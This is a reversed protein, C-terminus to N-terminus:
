ATKKKLIAAGIGLVAVIGAGIVFPSVGKEQEVPASITKVDEVANTTSIDEAEAVEGTVEVIQSDDALEAPDITGHDVGENLEPNYQLTVAEIGEVVKIGEENVLKSVYDANEPTYPAIGIEIYDEVAGTNTVMIGKAKLDEAFEEFLKKDIEGQKAYLAEDVATIQITLPEDMKVNSEAFAFGMSAVSLSLSLALIKYIKKAIM